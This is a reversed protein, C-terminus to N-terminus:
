EMIINDPKERVPFSDDVVDRRHFVHRNGGRKRVGYAIIHPATSETEEACRYTVGEELGGTKDVVVQIAAGAFCIRM